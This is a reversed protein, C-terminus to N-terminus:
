KGSKKGREILSYVTKRSLQHRRALELLAGRRDVGTNKTLEGFEVVIAEPSPLEHARDPMGGNVQEGVVITFEGKEPLDETSLLESVFGRHWSEHLKTLEHAV